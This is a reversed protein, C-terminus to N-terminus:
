KHGEQAMCVLAPGDDVDDDDNDGDVEDDVVLNVSVVPAPLGLRRADLKDVENTCAAGAPGRGAFRVAGDCRLEEASVLSPAADVVASM